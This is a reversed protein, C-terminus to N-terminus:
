QAQPGEAGGSNPAPPRDEGVGGGPLPLGPAGRGTVAGLVGDVQGVLRDIRARDAQSHLLTRALSAGLHTFVGVALLTNTDIQM